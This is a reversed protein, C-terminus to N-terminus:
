RVKECWEKKFPVMHIVSYENYDQFITPFSSSMGTYCFM